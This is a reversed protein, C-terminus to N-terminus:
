EDLMRGDHGVRTHGCIYARVETDVIPQNAHAHPDFVDVVQDGIEILGEFGSVSDLNLRGMRQRSCADDGYHQLMTAAEMGYRQTIRKVAAKDSTVWPHSSGTSDGISVGMTAGSVGSGGEAQSSSAGNSGPGM